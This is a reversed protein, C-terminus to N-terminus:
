CFIRLLTRGLKYKSLSWKTEVKIAAIHVEFHTEIMIAVSRKLIM